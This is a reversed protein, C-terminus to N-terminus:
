EEPIYSRIFPIRVGAADEVFDLLIVDEPELGGVAAVVVVTAVGMALTFLIIIPIRGPLVGSIVYGLPLLVVPLAVYSKISKRTFPSIDFRNRLFLYVTVNLIVYSGASAFAAGMFGYIPILFLNLFFNIVFAVANSVLIFKTAGLASLTERNRGFAASTFSGIALVSLAAGAGVYDGGFVFSVISDPFVVVTVFVPFVILYVWKTTVEYIRGVSDDEDGDLRSAVPLYLYGFAGLVLLLVGTLPYAANYIGVENSSRLYGLMVTDTRTLLTNIVTSVILPASFTAMERGHFQFEGRLPFLRNLLHYTIFTAALLAVLYGLGAGILGVGLVLMGGILSVRVLPYFLNQTLLKYRTNEEGRIGGIGIKFCVFLPITIVFVYYMPRAAETEFLRSLVVPSAALLAVVILLSLALSIALGTVWAGRKDTLDDFRAMFRPVGQTFGAAGLTASLTFIAIGISYEGYAQPTLLRGVVVREALTSLSAVVSGAFVLVASSLLKSLNETNTSM